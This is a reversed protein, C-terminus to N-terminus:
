LQSEARPPYYSSFMDLRVVLQTNKFWAQRNYKRSGHPLPTSSKAPKRSSHRRRPLPCPHLKQPSHLSTEQEATSMLVVPVWPACLVLINGGWGPLYPHHPETPRWKLRPLRCHSLSILDWLKSEKFLLQAANNSRLRVSSDGINSFWM